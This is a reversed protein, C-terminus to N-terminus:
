DKTNNGDTLRKIFIYAMLIAWTNFILIVLNYSIIDNLAHDLKCYDNCTGLDGKPITIGSLTLYNIKTDSEIAYRAYIQRHIFEHSNIYALGLIYLMVLITVVALAKKVLTVM